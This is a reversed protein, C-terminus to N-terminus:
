KKKFPFWAVKGLLMTVAPIFLPLVILGYMLLGTIVITAIQILSLVGSPLMAGFTGALIISATIIVTGMKAMAKKMAFQLRVGNTAEENYRELLFISYDVGLAILMVFGFFPVAWSIGDYGLLNVFILEAASVSAFYTLLLSGIMYIPMVVSRLLFLLVVFLSSLMIIITRTYDDSSIEDLDHNISTVGSYAIEADSLAGSLDESDLQAKIEELTDMAEVSYPDDELVVEVTMGNGEGFTYQDVLRSFSEEELVEEPVYLGTSQAAESEEISTVMEEADELGSRIEEIGLRSEEIGGSMQGLAEALAEGQSGQQSLQSQLEEMDSEATDLQDEVESLRTVTSPLDEAQNLLSEAENLRNFATALDNQINVLEESMQPGAQSTLEGLNQQISSIGGSVGSLGERAEPFNEEIQEYQEDVKLDELLNGDPRTITRVSKVGEVSAVKSVVQEVYPIEESTALEEEGNLVIEIPLSDGTGFAEEIRELGQVSGYGDGIEDVMNFSLDEEYMLLLPVTIIAVIFISFIPRVVSVKSMWAWLKSDSHKAAKKSPWFLKDKLVAMFFPMVTFLVLLLIAIGIAVGAASKYIPFDAFIIVMFAIFGSIASAVLTKGATRYTEIIADNVSKGLTLEEKYRSLLLICYDTGIGFLVAVLFIQTYNSVPFGFWDIFFAVVSQSMLYTLGVAVLPVLPTVISRFVALLLGFILVVTIIETRELGEQASENVEHNIIPEGTVYATWENPIIDARIHEALENIAVEEGDVQIPLLVTQEDESVFQSELEDSEFPNVVEEVPAGYSDIEDVMNEISSRQDENLESELAFVISITDSTSGAEELIEAARQSDADNSLQFTGAEEAQETLNPSLVFLAGTLAIIGILIYWRFKIVKGM